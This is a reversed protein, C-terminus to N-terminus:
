IVDAFARESRQFILLGGLFVVVAVALLALMQWIPPRVTGLLSWRLAEFLWALPNAEFLWRLRDPVTSVAYAVPAAYLGVQIVWPVVYQVDRYKVMIASAAVGLGLAILLLAVIWVPLLLAAWTLSLGNALILVIGLVLAVAFDLLSSLAASLPVLLRPFFVKSVLASNAVLSNSARTLVASLLNWGLMGVYSFVFYPIGESPLNAIGGFVVAFIGAALVPQLVVWAVGVATQRYRLVIDRQGFRYLVERGHWLESWHPLHLRGPPRIVTKTM